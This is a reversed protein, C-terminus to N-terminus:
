GLIRKLGYKRVILVMVEPQETLRQRMHSKKANVETFISRIENMDYGMSVCVLLNQRNKQIGIKVLFEQLGRKEANLIRKM